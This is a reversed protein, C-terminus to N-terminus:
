MVKGAIVTFCNDPPVSFFLLNENLIIYEIVILYKKHNAKKDWNKLLSPAKLLCIQPDHQTSCHNDIRHGSSRLQQIM